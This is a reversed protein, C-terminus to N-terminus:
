MEPYETSEDMDENRESEESDSDVGLLQNLYSLVKTSPQNTFIGLWLLPIDKDM